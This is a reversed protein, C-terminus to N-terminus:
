VIKCEVIQVKFPITLPYEWNDCFEFFDDGENFAEGQPTKLEDETFVATSIIKAANKADEKSVFELPQGSEAVYVWEGDPDQVMILYFM